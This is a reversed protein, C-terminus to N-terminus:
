IWAPYWRPVCYGNSPEGSARYYIRISQDPWKGPMTCTVTPFNPQFLVVGSSAWVLFCMIPFRIIASNLFFITLSLKLAEQL